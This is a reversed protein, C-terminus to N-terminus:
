GAADGEVLDLGVHETVNEVIDICPIDRLYILRVLLALTKGFDLISSWSQLNFAAELENSTSRSTSIVALMHCIASRSDAM